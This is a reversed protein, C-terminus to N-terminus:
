FLDEAAFLYSQNPRPFQGFVAGARACVVQNYFRGDGTQLGVTTAPPASGDSGPTELYNIGIHGDPYLVIQFSVQGGEVGKVRVQAYEIVFRGTNTLFTSIRGGGGPDLDGWWGFIATEPRVLASLCRVSLAASVATAPLAVYGDSFIRLDVYDEGAFPLTFPLTIGINSSDIMAYETRGGLGPEEWNFGVLPFGQPTPRPADVQPLYASEPLVLTRVKVQATVPVNLTSGDAKTGVAWFTSQYTGTLLHTPSIVLSSQSPEGYRVTGSIPDPTLLWAVGVTGTVTWAIPELSPNAFTVSRTFPEAGFAVEGGIQQPSVELTSPMSTLLATQANILGAGVEGPSYSLPAATNRLLARVQAATLNPQAGWIQAALGTVVGAAMSTGISLHYCGGDVVRDGARCLALPWTSIMGAGETGGPAAIEIANGVASYAARENEFGTAAVAMVEPYAAPYKVPPPCIPDESPYCNGAAGILLSGQAAAYEVADGLLVSQQVLELSLNILPNEDDAADRIAQAVAAVTGTGASNLVKYPVLRVNPAAGAMGEDNNVAAGILGAVHTGHGNGDETPPLPFIYSRGGEVLGALDPHTADIGSDVVAVHVPTGVASVALEAEIQWGRSAHIRQLYWQDPVYLPDNVSFPQEAYSQAARVIWNPEAFAVAPQASLQAIAELETGVPVALLYASVGADGTGEAAGTMTLPQIVSAGLKVAASLADAASVEAAHWGVIIEGPAFPASVEPATEDQAQVSALLLGVGLLSIALAAFVPRRRWLTRQYFDVIVQRLRMPLHPSVGCSVGM